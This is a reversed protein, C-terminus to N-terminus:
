RGERHSMILNDHLFTLATEIADVKSGIFCGISNEVLNQLITRNFVMQVVGQLDINFM